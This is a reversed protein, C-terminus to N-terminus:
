ESDRSDKDWIDFMDRYEESSFDELYEVTEHDDYIIYAAHTIERQEMDEIIGDFQVGSPGFNEGIANFAFGDKFDTKGKLTWIFVINRNM